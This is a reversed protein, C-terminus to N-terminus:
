DAAGESKRYRQLSCYLNQLFFKVSALFDFKLICIDKYGPSTSSQYIVKLTQCMLTNGWWTSFIYTNSFDSNSSLLWNKRWNNRQRKSPPNNKEFEHLTTKTIICQKKIGLFIKKKCNKCNLFSSQSYGVRRWKEAACPSSCNVQASSSQGPAWVASWILYTWNVITSKLGKNVYWSTHDDNNCNKSSKM